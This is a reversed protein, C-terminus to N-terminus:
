SFVVGVAAGAFGVVLMLVISVIMARRAEEAAHAATAQSDAAIKKGSESLLRAPGRDMGAVAADGAGVDFDAAKFADFGKRYDVGMKVHAAAFQEVLTRSDGAPLAALLVRAKEDVDAERRAFAGWHKDLKAPDKGRLLTDKWEQVQTKFTVLMDAVAREHAQAASVQTQYVAVAQNLSYIGILAAGLLAALVGSFTLPLKLKLNM